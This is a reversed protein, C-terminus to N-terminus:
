YLSMAASTGRMPSHSKGEDRELIMSDAGYDTPPKSRSVMVPSGQTTSQSWTRSGSRTDKKSRHYFMKADMQSMQREAVPDYLTTRKPVDRPLMGDELSQHEDM